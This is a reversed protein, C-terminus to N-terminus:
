HQAAPIPVTRDKEAQAWAGPMMDWKDRCPTLWRTLCSFDFSTLRQMEEAPADPTVRVWIAICVECGGPGGIWYERHSSGAAEEPRLEPAVRAEGILGYGIPTNGVAESEKPFVEVYAAYSKGHAVGNDIGVSARVWSPRGGLIGYARLVRPHNEFFESHAYAFDGITIVAPCDNVTYPGSADYAPRWERFTTQTQALTTKGYEVAQIESYLREARRRFAYQQLRVPAVLVFILM